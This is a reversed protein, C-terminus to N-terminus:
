IDVRMVNKRWVNFRVKKRWVQCHLHYYQSQQLSQSTEWKRLRIKAALVGVRCVPSSISEESIGAMEALTYYTVNWV